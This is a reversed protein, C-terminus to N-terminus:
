LYDAPRPRGKAKPVVGSVIGTPGKDTALCTFWLMALVVGLSKRGGALLPGKIPKTARHIIRALTLARRTVAPSDM